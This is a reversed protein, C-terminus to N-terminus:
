VINLFYAAMPITYHLICLGWISHHKQYIICIVCILFFSGLMFYLGRHIHMVTFYLACLLPAGVAAYKSPLIHLLGEHMIGQSIFEQLFVSIPYLKMGITFGFDWFPEDAHFPGIGLKLSLSKYLVMLVIAAFSFLISYGISKGAGRFSLGVQSPKRKTHRCLLLSLILGSILLIHTMQYPKIAIEFTDVLLSFMVWVTISALLGSFVLFLTRQQKDPETILPLEHIVFLFASQDSDSESPYHWLIQLQKAIGTSDVISLIHEQQRTTGALVRHILSWLAAHNSHLDAPDMAPLATLTDVGLLHCASDNIRIIQGDPKVLMFGDSPSSFSHLSFDATSFSSM